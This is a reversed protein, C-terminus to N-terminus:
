KKGRLLQEITYIKYSKNPYKRGRQWQLLTVNPWMKLGKIILKKLIKPSRKDERVIVELIRALSGFINWRCFAVFGKDDYDIICTDFGIHTLIIGRLLEDNYNDMQGGGNDRIFNIVDEISAEIHDELVKM